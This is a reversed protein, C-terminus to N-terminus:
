VDTSTTGPVRRPVAPAAATPRDLAAEVGAAIRAQFRDRGFRREIEETGVRLERQLGRDAFVRGIKDVAEELSRYLL